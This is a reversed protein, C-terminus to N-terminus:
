GTGSLDKKSPLFGYTERFIKSFYSPNSYGVEQAIYAINGEQNRILKVAHKMRIEKVLQNPTKGTLVITKRYLQTRSIGLERTLYNVNFQDSGLNQEITQFLEIIFKEDTGNLVRWKIINFDFTQIDVLDKLRSSILLHGPEAISCLIQAHNIAVQFFKGEYTLPLGYYLSFKGVPQNIFTSSDELLEISKLCRLANFPSDFVAVLNSNASYEVLRGQTAYLYKIISAKFQDFTKGSPEKNGDKFNSFQGVLVMRYATDAEGNVNLTMHHRDIQLGAGMILELFGPEVEQINCPTNGHSELHCNVCAESNPGEMLCFVMSDEKNVWYQLYKVNHLDQKDLDSQHATRVDDITLGPELQHYDIFLPV